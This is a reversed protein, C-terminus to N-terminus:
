KQKILLHQDLLRRDETVIRELYCGETLDAVNLSVDNDGKMLEKKDECLLRGQLDYLSIVVSVPDASVCNLHLTKYMPNPYANVIFSNDAPLEDIGSSVCTIDMWINVPNGPISSFGSASAPFSSSFPMSMGYITATSGDATIVTGASSIIAGVYYDGPTIATSTVSATVTGTTVPVIASEAVLNGPSGAIDNYVAMKVNIGPANEGNISIGTLTGSVTVTFKLFFATNSPLNVPNAFVPSEYGVNCGTQAQTSNVISGLVIFPLFFIKKTM